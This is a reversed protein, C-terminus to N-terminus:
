GYYVYRVSTIKGYDLFNPVAIYVKCIINQRIETVEHLINKREKVTKYIHVILKLSREFANEDLETGNSKRKQIWNKKKQLYKRYKHGISILQPQKLACPHPPRSEPYNNLIYVMSSLSEWEMLFILKWYYKLFYHLRKLMNKIWSSIIVLRSKHRYICLCCAHLPWTVDLVCNM